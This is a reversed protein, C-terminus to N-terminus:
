GSSMSSLMVFIQLKDTRDHLAKTYKNARSLSTVADAGSQKAAEQLDATIGKYIKKYEGHTINSALNVSSLKEGIRSRFGKLASFPIDGEANLLDAVLDDRLQRIEQSSVLKNRSLTPAGEISGILAELADVTNKAKVPTFKPISEDLRNYLGSEIARSKPLFVDEIGRQIGAGVVSPERQKSLQSALEEVRKGVEAQQSIGKERMTTYAFPFKAAGAELSQFGPSGLAQGATPTTGTGAFTEINRRVDESTVGTLGRVGQRAGSILAQPATPAVAGLIGGAAQGIPGAGSEEAISSGIGSTIASVGQMVPRETLVEGIKRAVPSAAKLAMRGVSAPAALEAVTGVVKQQMRETPTAPRPLGIDTKIDELIEDLPKGRGTLASYVRSGIDTLFGATGGIAAGPVAGIGGFM